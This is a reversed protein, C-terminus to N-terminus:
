NALNVISDPKSKSLCFFLINSPNDPSYFPFLFCVVIGKRVKLELLCCLRNYELFQCRFISHKTGNNLLRSNNWEYCRFSRFFIFFPIALLSEVQDRCFLWTLKFPKWKSFLAHGLGIGFLFLWSGCFEQKPANFSFIIMKRLEVEICTIDVRYLWNGGKSNIM